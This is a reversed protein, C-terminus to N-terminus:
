AALDRRSHPSPPPAPPPDEVDPQDLIQARATFYADMDIAFVLACRDINPSGGPVPGQQLGSFKYRLYDLCHGFVNTISGWLPFNEFQFCTHWQEEGNQATRQIRGFLCHGLALELGEHSSPRKYVNPHASWIQFLAGNDELCIHAGQMIDQLHGHLEPLALLEALLFGTDTEQTSQAQLFERIGAADQERALVALNRYVMKHPCPGWVREAISNWARFITATVQIVLLCVRLVTKAIFSPPRRQTLGDLEDLRGIFGRPTTRTPSSAPSPPPAGPTRPTTPAPSIM